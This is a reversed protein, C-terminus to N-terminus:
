RLKDIGVGVTDTFFETPFVLKQDEIGTGQAPDSRQFRNDLGGALYGITELKDLEARQEPTVVPGRATRWAGPPTEPERIKARWESPASANASVPGGTQPQPAIVLVGVIVAAAVVVVILASYTPPVRSKM